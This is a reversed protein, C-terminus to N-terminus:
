LVKMLALAKDLTEDYESTKDSEWTIGGGVGFYAMGNKILITRIVINLDINGDFGLYGISGTYIGRRTPELEEIIEM